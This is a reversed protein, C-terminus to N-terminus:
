PQDDSLPIQTLMSAPSWRDITSVSGSRSSPDGKPSSDYPDPYEPWWDPHPLKPGNPWWSRLIDKYEGDVWLAEVHLQCRDIVPQGWTKDNLDARTQYYELCRDLVGRLMWAIDDNGLMDRGELKPKAYCIADINCDIFEKATVHYQDAMSM